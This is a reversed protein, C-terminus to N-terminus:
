ALLQSSPNTSRVRQVASRTVIPVHARPHSPAISSSLELGWAPTTPPDIREPNRSAHAGADGRGKYAPFTSTDFLPALVGNPSPLINAVYQADTFFLHFGFHKNAPLRNSLWM